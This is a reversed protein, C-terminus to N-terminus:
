EPHVWCVATDGYRKSRGHALGAPLTPRDSRAAREVIVVADETLLPTLLELTATLEAEGLEYPPDLFALDFPGSATRLYADAAARHVRAARGTATAVARANRIVSDASRATDEVTSLM